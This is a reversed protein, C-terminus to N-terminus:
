AADNIIVYWSSFYIPKALVPAVRARFTEIPTWVMNAYSDDPNNFWIPDNPNRVHWIGTIEIEVNGLTYNEGVNLLM